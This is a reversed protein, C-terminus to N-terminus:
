VKLSSMPGSNCKFIWTTGRLLCVVPRSYFLLKKFYQSINAAKESLSSFWLGARQQCFASNRINSRTHCSPVDSSTQWDVGASTARVKHVPGTTEPKQVWKKCPKNEDKQTRHLDGHDGL